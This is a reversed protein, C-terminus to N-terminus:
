VPAEEPFLDIRSSDGALISCRQLMASLERRDDGFGCSAPVFTPSLRLEFYDGSQDIPVSLVVQSGRKVKLPTGNSKGARFTQITLASQPAWEPSTIQIEVSQANHLPATQIKLNEGVWGDAHVGSLLNVKKVDALAYKFLDWYENAMRESDSFEDIRAQGAKVLRARLAEDGVLTIMAEAIQSPVRPDFMIAADAAVEPLSTTNSCAVPVNAAMAELVPLGFGEYLSPFVVGGCNSILAALEENPLYGPFIIRDGLNMGDAANKLWEQRPGPAGTCVLKINGPFRADACAMGFAALLMEHNKHKWFNAPYILYARHVLGLRELVQTNQGDQPAIRRAMRLHITRIHSPDLQGHLIASQRSYDSIAALATARRSADIFTQARHAVDEPAFFEPYTKYQLDYITCVTPIGPEYYTPATFPCFLLDVELDRLLTGASRRKLTRNLLYGVRSLLRRQRGGIHPSIRAALRKLLPQVARAQPAGLVLKRQVNSRDLASLEEHSEARTLLIFQTAPAMAALQRLLTLVFIKAGGNEGGPLVPTLDVAVKSPTMNM